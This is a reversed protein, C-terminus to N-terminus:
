YGARDSMVFRLVGGRLIDDHHLYTHPYSKGNLTASQIYCRESSTGLAEITIIKSHEEVTKMKKTCSRVVEGNLIVSCAGCVGIGCGVKTGTLGLRERIMDLLTEGEEVSLNMPTGNVVCRIDIM